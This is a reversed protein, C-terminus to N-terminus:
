IYFLTEEFPSRKSKDQLDNESDYLIMRFLLENTDAVLGNFTPDTININLYVFYPGTINEYKTLSIKGTPSFRGGYPYNIDNTIKPQTIFEDCNTTKTGNYNYYLLCSITFDYAYALYVAPAVVGDIPTFTTSITPNEKVMRICLLVFSGTLFMLMLIIVCQRLHWLYENETKQPKKYLDRLM